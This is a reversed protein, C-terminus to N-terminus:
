IFSNNYEELERIKKLLEASAEFKIRSQNNCDFMWYIYWINDRINEVNNIRSIKETAYWYTDDYWRWLNMALRKMEEFLSDDLQEYYNFKEMTFNHFLIRLCYLWSEFYYLNWLTLPSIFYNDSVFNACISEINQVEENMMDDVAIVSWM